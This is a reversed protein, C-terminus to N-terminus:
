KITIREILDNLIYTDLFARAKVIRGDALTLHWSYTNSYAKGDIATAEGHWEVIVDDGSTIISELAPVIQKSLRASIPAVSKEMFEKKSNFTGSIPSTGAVTWEVHDSLLDFLTGKGAKWLSFQNEVLTKNEFEKNTKIQGFGPIVNISLISLISFAMIQIKRKNEM